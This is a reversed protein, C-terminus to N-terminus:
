VVSKRDKLQMFSQAYARTETELTKLSRGSLFTTLGLSGACYGSFEMNGIEIAAKFGQEFYTLTEKIHTNRHFAFLSGTMLVAPKAAQANLKEVVELALQSFQIGVKVAQFYNCALVGYSIYASASTSTNGYELSLKVAAIVLLPYLPSATMFTASILSSIIKAAAIMELNDMPPLDVFSDIPRDGILAMLEAIARQTDEPGPNEPFVIGLQQLGIRGIEIAGTLNKQTLNAQIQIVQINTQDLQSHAHKYINQALAEMDAIDGQLAASEAALEHFALALEYQKQWAQEALLKLGIDAYQRASGYATAARAKQCATLNLQALRDQKSQDTILEIGYNLQGVVEFIRNQIAIASLQQELRQGIQYHITAKQDTPILRYAAQQIRDHLFRYGVTATHHKRRTDTNQTDPKETHNCPSEKSTAGQFFKYTADSPIVFGEQLGAWLADAVTEQNQKCIVSLTELDFQNGICAAFRLVTQTKEPLKKLRNIIFTVVDDTLALQKLQTLDCQWHGAAPDFTICDEQYLGQLFQATFFPNGKTKQYVNQALPIAAELTCYLTDACIHTIATESLPELTLTQLSKKTKEIASLTLMLPHAPFVENDRYAGLILLHGTTDEVLRQLLQLSSADAWQLDDLFIVLPHSAATFVSVFQTFLTNFRTQAATGSLSVATPQPGIIHELEPIVDIIIQGNNGLAQLIKRKWQAIASDSEGLIQGILTRFAQVFGSFPIDRNFQDFKGKSFYGQQQTIPKHVENIVATKGIGSFGAILMMEVQGTTARQFAELLTQIEAERGYLKEPILFRDSVDKTGLSFPVIDHTEKWQNLCSELDHKLGLASQYRSEANKAMLKLVIASVMAPIEPNKEHPPVPQKAIHAHVLTLPDESQFPLSGTLMEYLSVGLAYFDARYDIGRNMRGTQEPALYALTGELGSPNQITQSEKPLQSAISFDILKIQGSNPHILINAPKIDKHILSHQALSHLVDATQIAVGLSKILPLASSLSQAQMYAELSIGGFDEMVLAYSNGWTELSLPRVIGSVPLAQTIVYQHRFKALESFSPYTQQLLKIVVPRDTEQQRARYVATRANGYLQETITYGLVKPFNTATENTAM